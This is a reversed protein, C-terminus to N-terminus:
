EGQTATEERKGHNGQTGSTALMAGGHRRTWKWLSQKSQKAAFQGAHEIDKALEGDQFRGTQVFLAGVAAAAKQGVLPQQAAREDLYYALLMTAIM